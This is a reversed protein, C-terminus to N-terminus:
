GLREAVEDLVSESGAYIGSSRPWHSIV